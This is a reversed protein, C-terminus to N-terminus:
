AKTKNLFKRALQMDVLKNDMKELYRIETKCNRNQLRMLHINEERKTKRSLLCYPDEQVNEM